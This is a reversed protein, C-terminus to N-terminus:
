RYGPISLITRRTVSVSPDVQSLATLRVRVRRDFGIPRRLRVKVKVRASAGPALTVTAQGTEFRRTAKEGDLTYTIRIAPGRGEGEVEPSTNTIGRDKRFGFSTTTQGTNTVRFIARKGRKSVRMAVGYVPSPIPPAAAVTLALANAGLSLTGSIGSVTFDSVDFGTVGGYTLLTYTQGPQVGADILNILYTGASGKILSGNIAPAAAPGGLTEVLRAGGSWTLEGVTLTGNSAVLAGALAVPEFITGQGSLIGAANVTVSQTELSGDVVLRGDVVSTPGNYSNVGALVLSGPGNLTLGVRGSDGGIGGSGSQDAIADSLRQTEGAGPTFTLIGGDGQAFIGSGLGSGRTAPNVSSGSGGLGGTVVGGSMSGSGSFTVTGNKMVFVAGGAGLGGGGARGASGGSSFGGGFGRFGNSAGFGAGAGGGFGGNGGTRAAGGGGGFGGSGGTQFAALTSANDAGGGGGFGGNKGAPGAGGGAAPGTGISAAGGDAGPVIISGGAAGADGGGKAALGVGGGGGNNNGASAGGGPGGLGGGGGSGDTGGGIITVDGGAGGIASNTDFTVGDLVLDVNEHVFIAGGLGAGGGGAGMSASDGGKGGLALTNRLTLNRVAVSKRGVASFTFIGRYLGAGDLVRGNGNITLDVQVAPLNSALTIDAGFTITDGDTAASIATRLEGDSSVSVSAAAGPRALSAILFIAFYTIRLANM